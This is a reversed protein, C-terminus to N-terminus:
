HKYNYKFEKLIKGTANNERIEKLRNATDYLYVERIGSPPTIGTVGIMPDYTYTTIQYAALDPNKRFADLANILAPENAPDLADADSAAIIASALSSVQAYTAGTIKTIPQTTNYGWIISTTIGDKTTYQLLNGKSDYQDYILETDPNGTGFSSQISQPLYSVNSTWNNAYNVKKTDLLKGNSYSEIKEIESIRNQSYTSNGSHYFYKTKLQTGDETDAIHESIQKNVPNYSFSENKETIKQNGNEYFYNKTNKSSLMAWGYTEFIPFPIYNPTNIDLPLGGFFEKPTTYGSGCQMCFYSNSQVLNIYTQYDKPYNPSSGNYISSPKSFKIGLYEENEVFTYSNVTEYLKNGLNNFAEEKKLLGRKYDYDKPKVFPPGGFNFFEAYHDRPSTYIYSIKGKDKESVIVNQYGINGGNTKLIAFNSNSSSLTAYHSAENLVGNCAASGNYAAWKLKTMFPIEYNFEPIPGVLSGSSYDLSDSLQYSFEKEKASIYLGPNSLYDSIPINRDFYSIKKIRIGGGLMVKATGAEEFIDFNIAGTSNHNPYNFDNWLLKYTTNKELIISICCTPNVSDCSINGVPIWMSGNYKALNLAVNQAQSDVITPYFTVKRNSNSVPFNYSNNTPTFNLSKSNKFNYSMNEATNPIPQNGIFSFQNSEYNFFASGGTPYKIKQLVNTDCFDPMTIRRDAQTDCGQLNFFGWRDKGVTYGSTNLLDKYYFQYDGVFNNESDTEEIKKLFMRNNMVELYNQTFNFKKLQHGYWDKVTVSKLYPARDNLNINNDERGQLFQFEIKGQNIVNITKVKKVNVNTFSNSMVQVPPIDDCYNFDRYYDAMSGSTFDHTIVNSRTFSEIFTTSATPSIKDQYLINVIEQNNTDIVKSLHFSSNFVENNYFSDNSVLVPSGNGDNKYTTTRSNGFHVSTEIVDFVYKYGKDDYIIFGTPVYTSPDYNNVIKVIYNDLPVVELKNLTLNKKIYFRGANGMFNFQWLDHESDYMSTKSATWIFENGLNYNASNLNPNYYTKHSNLINESFAYFSNHDTHYIGVKRKSYDGAYIDKLMEDAYGQVTRTVTGGFSLNWGLGVDSSVEDAAISSPHYKLSLNVNVQKSLTPLSMLPVSVDPIGTYNSVPIEEFKMLGAVSPSPPIVSPQGTLIEPNGQSFLFNFTYLLVISYIKRM